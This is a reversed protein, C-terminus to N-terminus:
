KKECFWVLCSFHYIEKESVIPFQHIFYTFMGTCCAECSLLNEFLIVFTEHDM